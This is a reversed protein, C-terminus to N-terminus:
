PGRVRYCKKIRETIRDRMTVTMSVQSRSLLSSPVWWEVGAIYLFIVSQPLNRAPDLNLVVVVCYVLQLVEARTSHSPRKQVECKLDVSCCVTIRWQSVTLLAILWMVPWCSCWRIAWCCPAAWNKRNLSNGVTAAHHQTHTYDEWNFKGCQIGRHASTHIRFAKLTAHSLVSASISPVQVVWTASPSHLPGTSCSQPTAQTEAIERSPGNCHRGNCVKSSAPLKQKLSFLPTYPRVFPATKM